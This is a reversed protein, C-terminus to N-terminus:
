SVWACGFCVAGFLSRLGYMSIWCNKGQAEHFRIAYWESIGEVRKEIDKARLLTQFEYVLERGAPLKGPQANDLETDEVMKALQLQYAPQL